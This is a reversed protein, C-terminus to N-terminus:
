TTKGHREEQQKGREQLRGTLGLLKGNCVTGSVGNECTFNYNSSGEHRMLDVLGDHEVSYGKGDNNNAMQYWISFTM